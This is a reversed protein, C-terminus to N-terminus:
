SQARAKALLDNIKPIIPAMADKAPKQGLHILDWAPSFMNQIDLHTAAMDLARDQEAAKKWVDISEWPRLSKKFADSELQSQRPPISAGVKYQLAQFDDQSMWNILNYAEDPHKTGKMVCFSNPGNRVFRGKPGAPIPAMGVEVNKQAAFDAIEPINGKIGYQMAVRGSIIRGSKGGTVGASEAASPVIHHKAEFDAYFQLADLAPAEDLLCKTMDETWLNGGWGWILINLWHLGSTLGDWGFQKNAGSGKTLKIATDRAAEWTWNGSKEMEDPAPLGAEKFLSRNFITICPGSYHPIGFTKAGHPFQYYMLASLSLDASKPDSKMYSDLPLVAAKAAMSALWQPHIFSADPPTGGAVMTLIKVPMQQDEPLITEEVAVGYKDGFMQYAPPFVQKDNEPGYAIHNIVTITTKKGGAAAAGTTPKAVAETTAAATPAVAVGSGTTAQATTGSGAPTTPKAAAGGGTTPQPAATTGGCAVSLTSAGAVALAVLMSRRSILRNM